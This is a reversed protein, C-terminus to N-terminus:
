TDAFLGLIIYSIIISCYMTIYVITLVTTNNLANEFSLVADNAAMLTAYWLIVTVAEKNSFLSCLKWNAM